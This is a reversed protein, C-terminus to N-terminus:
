AFGWCYSIHTNLELTMNKDNLVIRRSTKTVIKHLLFVIVRSCLSALALDTLETWDLLRLKISFTALLARRHGPM